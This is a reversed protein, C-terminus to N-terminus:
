TENIELEELEKRKEDRRDINAQMDGPAGKENLSAYWISEVGFSVHAVKVNLLRIIDEKFFMSGNQTLFYWHIGRISAVVYRSYHRPRYYKDFNLIFTMDIGAMYAIVGVDLGIENMAIKLDYMSWLANPQRSRKFGEKIVDRINNDKFDDSQMLWEVDPCANVPLQSLEALSTEQIGLIHQIIQIFFRGCMSNEMSMSWEDFRLGRIIEPSRGTHYPDDKLLDPVDMHKNQFFPIGLQNHEVPFVYCLNYNTVQLVKLEEKQFCFVLDLKGCEANVNWLHQISDWRLQYKTAFQDCERINMVQHEMPITPNPVIDQRNFLTDFFPLTNVHTMLDILMNVDQDQTKVKLLLISFKAKRDPNTIVDVNPKHNPDLCMKTFECAMYIYDPHNHTMVCQDRIVSDAQDRFWLRVPLAQSLPIWLDHYEDPVQNRSPEGCILTLQLEKMARLVCQDNRLLRGNRYGHYVSHYLRLQFDDMAWWKHMLITDVACMMATYHTPMVAKRYFQNPVYRSLAENCDDHPPGLFRCRLIAEHDRTYSDQYRLFTDYIWTEIHQLLQPHSNPKIETAGEIPSSCFYVQRFPLQIAYKRRPIWVKHLDIGGKGRIRINAYNRFHLILQNNSKPVVHGGYPITETGQFSSFLSKHVPDESDAGIVIWEM